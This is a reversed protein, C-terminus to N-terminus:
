KKVDTSNDYNIKSVEQYSGSGNAIDILKFEYSYVIGSVASMHYNTEINYYNNTKETKVRLQNGVTEGINVWVDGRKQYIYIPGNGSAGRIVNGCIEVPMVILEDVGDGNLDVSKSIDGYAEKDTIVFKTSDDKMGCTLSPTEEKTKTLILDTVKDPTSKVSPSYSTEPIIFLYNQTEKKENSSPKLLPKLGLMNDILIIGLMQMLIFSGGVIVITFIINLKRKLYKEVLNAVNLAGLFIVLHGIFDLITGGLAYKLIIGIIFQSLVYLISIKEIPPLVINLIKDKM